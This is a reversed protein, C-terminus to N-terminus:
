RVARSWRSPENHTKQPLPRPRSPPSLTCNIVTYVSYLVEMDDTYTPFQFELWKIHLEQNAHADDKGGKSINM